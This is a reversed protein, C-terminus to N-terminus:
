NEIESIFRNYAEVFASYPFGKSRIFILARDKNKIKKKKLIKYIIEVEEEAPYIRNMKENIKDIQDKGMALILKQSIFYRSFLHNEKYYSITNEILREDNIIRKDKLLNIGYEIEKDNYGKEKLYTILQKESFSKYKLKKLLASVVEKKRAKNYIDFFKNDDIEGIAIQEKKIIKDSLVFTNQNEDMITSYGKKLPIISIIKM